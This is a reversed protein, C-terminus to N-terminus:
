RPRTPISTLLRAMERRGRSVHWRVTITSIGLLAAIAPVGMGELEHLVLVSRRRPPLAELARWVLTRAILQSEPGSVLGAPPKGAADIRERHRVQMRERRWADRRLNVLVRVLWAEAQADDAPLARARAARLFTEQVLDLADDERMTLRRALRYLRPYCADFLAGIREAPAPAVEEPLASAITRGNM